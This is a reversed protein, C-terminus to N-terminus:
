ARLKGAMAALSLVEGFLSLNACTVAQVTAAPLEPRGVVGPTATGDNLFFMHFDRVGAERATTECCVNTAIGGIVVNAIGRTKLIMELDTGQFAGFRPKELVVDRRDIVLDRHFDSSPNGKTIMGDRIVDMYEPMVGANTLGPRLIHATHVVLAGRSRCLEAFGNLAQLLRRGNAPAVPTNEVFCNQLDINLFATRRAEASFDARIPPPGEAASAGQAAALAGLAGAALLQRRDM